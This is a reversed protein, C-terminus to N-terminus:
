IHFCGYFQSPTTHRFPFDLVVELSVTRYIPYICSLTVLSCIALLRVGENHILYHLCHGLCDQHTLTIAKERRSWSVSTSCHSTSAEQVIIYFILSLLVALSGAKAYILPWTDKMGLTRSYTWIKQLLQLEINVRVFATRRKAPHLFLVLYRGQFLGPFTNM